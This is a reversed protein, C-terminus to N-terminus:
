YDLGFVSSFCRKIQSEVFQQVCPQRSAYSVKYNNIKAVIFIISFHSWQNLHYFLIIFGQLLFLFTGNSSRIARLAFRSNSHNSNPLPEWTWVLIFFRLFIYLRFLVQLSSKPYVHFYIRFALGAKVFRSLYCRKETIKQEM